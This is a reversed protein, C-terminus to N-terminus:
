YHLLKGFDMLWKRKSLQSIKKHKNANNGFKLIDITRYFLSFSIPPVIPDNFDVITLINDREM